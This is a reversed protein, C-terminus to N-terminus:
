LEEVLVHGSITLSDAPAGDLRLVLSTDTQKVVPRAEPPYLVSLPVRVNWGHKQLNVGTGASAQTTNNTEAAFGAASDHSNLPRPTPTSGGSGSTTHGRVWTMGLVEEAADGLDTTQLIEFGHVIVPKDDAPTIEVLDAAVTLAAAVIDITYMRGM